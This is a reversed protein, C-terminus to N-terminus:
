TVTYSMVVQSVTTPEVTVEPENVVAETNESVVTVESTNPRLQLNTRSRPRSCCDCDCDCWESLRNYWGYQHRSEVFVTGLGCCSPLAVFLIFLVIGIIGGISLGGSDTPVTLIITM